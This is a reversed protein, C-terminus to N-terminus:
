EENDQPKPDKGEVYDKMEQTPKKTHVRASANEKAQKLDKLDKHFYENGAKITRIDRAMLACTCVLFHITAYTGVIFLIYSIWAGPSNFHFVSAKKITPWDNVIKMWFFKTTPWNLEFSADKLNDGIFKWSFDNVVIQYILVIVILVIFAIMPIRADFYFKRRNKEWSVKFFQRKNDILNADLIDYMSKDVYHAQHKVIYKILKVLYGVIVLVIILAVLLAILVRKDSESLSILTVIM